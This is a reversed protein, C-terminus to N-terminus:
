EGEKLEVSTSVNDKTLGPVRTGGILVANAFDLRSVEANVLKLQIIGNERVTPEFDMLIGFEKFVITVPAISGVGTTTTQVVPYPFEGGAKFQGAKGSEVILNPEALIKALGKGSLAKLFYATNNHTDIVGFQPGGTAASTSATAGTATLGLAETITAAGLTSGGVGSFIGIAKSSAYAWNIGLERTAKRDISAVTIQLLVQPVSALEVLNVMQVKADKYGKYDEVVRKIRNYREQSSVTGSIIVMDKLVSVQIDDGPALQRLRELFQTNDGAAIIEFFTKAGTKDWIILSTTGIAKGTVQLEKLTIVTVEAIAPDAVSVREIGGQMDLIVSRGVTVEVPVNKAAAPGPLLLAALAAAILLRPFLRAQRVYSTSKM